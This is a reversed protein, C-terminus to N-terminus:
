WPSVARDYTDRVGKFFDGGGGSAAAARKQERNARDLDYVNETAEIGLQRSGPALLSKPLDYRMERIEKATKWGSDTKKMKNAVFRLFNKIHSPSADQKIKKGLERQLQLLEGSSALMLGEFGKAIDAAEKETAGKSISSLVNEVFNVKSVAQQGVAGAIRPGKEGLTATAEATESALKNENVDGIKKRASGYSALNRFMEKREPVKEIWLRMIEPNENPTMNNMISNLKFVFGAQEGQSTITSPDYKGEPTLNFKRLGLTKLVQHGVLTDALDPNFSEVLELGMKTRTGSGKFIADSLDEVSLIGPKDADSLLFDERAMYDVAERYSKFAQEAAPIKDLKDRLNGMIANRALGKYEDSTASAGASLNKLSTHADFPKVKYADLLKVGLDDMDGVLKKYERRMGQSLRRLEANSLEEIEFMNVDSGDLDGSMIGTAERIEGLRNSIKEAKAEIAKVKAKVSTPILERYSKDLAINFHSIEPGGKVRMKEMESMVDLLDIREGDKGASRLARELNKGAATKTAEHKKDIKYRIDDYEKVAKKSNMKMFENVNRITTHFAALDYQKFKDAVDLSGPPMKKMLANIESMSDMAIIFPPIEVEDVGNELAFKVGSGDGKLSRHILEETFAPRNKYLTAVGSSYAQGLINEVIGSEYKPARHQRTLEFIPTTARKAVGLGKMFTEGVAAGVGDMMANFRDFETDSGLINAVNRRVEEAGAGQLGSGAVFKVGRTLANSDLVDMAKNAIKGALPLGRKLAGGAGGTLVNLAVDSTFGAGLERLDELSAGEINIPVTNEVEGHSLWQIYKGDNSLQASPHVQRFIELKAQNNDAAMYGISNLTGSVFDYAEKYEHMKRNEDMVSIDGPQQFEHRAEPPREDIYEPTVQSGQQLSSGTTMQDEYMSGLSDNYESTLPETTQQPVPELDTTYPNFRTEQGVDQTEYTSGLDDSFQNLLDEDKDKLM